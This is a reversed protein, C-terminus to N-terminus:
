NINVVGWKNVEVIKSEGASSSVVLGVPSSANGTLKAMVVEAQTVSIDNGWSFKQDFMPNRAAYNDGRFLIMEKDVVKVGWRSDGKETMSNLRATRLLSSLNLVTNALDNRRLFGASVPVGMLGVILIIGVVSIMEVLTFGKEIKARGRRVNM